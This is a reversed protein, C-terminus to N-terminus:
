STNLKPTIKGDASKNANNGNASIDSINSKNLQMTTDFKQTYNFKNGNAKYV